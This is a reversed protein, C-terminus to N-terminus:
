VGGLLKAGTAVAGAVKNVSDWNRQDKAMGAQKRLRYDDIALQQNRGQLDAGAEGYFKQLADDQARQSLGAKNFSNMQNLDQGRMAGLGQGYQAQQNMFEGLRADGAQAAIDSGGAAGAGAAMAQGLGRGTNAAGASVNGALDGMAKNAQGSVTSTGNHLQELASAYGERAQNGLAMDYPNQRPPLGLQGRIFDQFRGSNDMTVPNGAADVERNAYGQADMDFFQALPDGRSAVDEPSPGGPTPAYQHQFPNVPM